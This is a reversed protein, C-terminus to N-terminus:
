MLFKSTAWRVPWGGKPPQTNFGFHAFMIPSTRCWGGKPPQTNFSIRPNKYFLIDLWGGKPPQTNFGADTATGKLFTVWGGKPPQTNFGSPILCLRLRLFGAAKLRSHTSVWMAQTQTDGRAGAAKLRSHTSVKTPKSVSNQNLWGGKPPQTNFCRAQFRVTM